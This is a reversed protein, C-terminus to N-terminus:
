TTSAAMGIDTFNDFNAWGTETATATNGSKDWGVDSADMSVTEDMADENSNFDNWASCELLFLLLHTYTIAHPLPLILVWYNQGRCQLILVQPQLKTVLGEV